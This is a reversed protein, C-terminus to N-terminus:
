IIIIITIIVFLYIIVLLVLTSPFYIIKYWMTLVVAKSLRYKFSKLLADPCHQTHVPM